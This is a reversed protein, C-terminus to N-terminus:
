GAHHRKQRLCFSHISPWNSTSFKCTEMGDPGRLWDCFGQTGFVCPNKRKPTTALEGAELRALYDHDKLLKFREELIATAEM